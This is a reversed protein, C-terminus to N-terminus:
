SIHLARHFRSKNKRRDILYMGEPTRGDGELTKKGEPQRGLSVRYSKLSRGEKYLTLKRARKEILVKDAVTGQPISLDERNAFYGICIVAIVIAAIALFVKKV